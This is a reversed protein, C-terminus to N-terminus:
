EGVDQEINSVEMLHPKVIASRVNGRVVVTSGIAIYDTETNLEEALKIAIENATSGWSEPAVIQNEKGYQEDFTLVIIFKEVNVAPKARKTAEEELRKLVADMKEAYETNIWEEGCKICTPLEFDAPLIYSKDKYQEKREKAILKIDGGCEGCRKLM